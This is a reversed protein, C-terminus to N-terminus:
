GGGEAEVAAVSMLHGSLFATQQINCYNKNEYIKLCLHIEQRAIQEDFNM